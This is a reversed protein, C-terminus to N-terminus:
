QIDSNKRKNFKNVFVYIRWWLYAITLTSLTYLIWNDMKLFRKFMLPVAQITNWPNIGQWSYRMEAPASILSILCFMIILILASAFLSAKNITKM